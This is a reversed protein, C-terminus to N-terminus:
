QLRAADDASRLIWIPWGAALLCAQSETVKGAKAKVEVLRVEGHRTAVIDVFNRLRSTDIAKWGCRRLTTLVEKHTSDVRRAFTVCNATRQAAGRTGTRVTPM